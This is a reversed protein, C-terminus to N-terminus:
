CYIPLCIRCIPFGTPQYRYCRISALTLFAPKAGVICVPADIETASSSCQRRSHLLIQGKTSYCTNHQRRVFTPAPFPCRQISAVRFCNRIRLNKGLLNRVERLASIRELFYVQLFPGETCITEFREALCASGQACLSVSTM